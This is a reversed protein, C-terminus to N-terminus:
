IPEATTAPCAALYPELLEPDFTRGDFFVDPGLELSGMRSGVATPKALSGEIKSDARPLEVGLPALAARYIDPRYTGRVAVIAEPTHRVQGSRVMQAYFWLAHSIWPFTAANRHFNLFGDIRHLTKDAAPFEGALILRLRDVPQALYDGRSLLAALAARNEDADCWGAARYIARVLAMLAAPHDQAWQARVGLVKEPGNRWIHANTTIARGGAVRAAVSGWPEGACFGDIRNNKLADPLLPPPVVVLEYDRNEVLGGSSMWYKLQYHHASYPHVIGFVLSRRADARAEAIAMRLAQLARGADLDSLALHPELMRSLRASVTVTNAGTGFAIPVHMAVPLPGLGLNSAIPLPALIHAADLHSVALRDRITAWSTERVLSLRLGEQEAFGLEHAVVLPACDVLPIFGARIEQVASTM